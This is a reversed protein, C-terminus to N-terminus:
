WEHSSNLRTSKREDVLEQGQLFSQLSSNVLLAIHANPFCKRLNRLFPVLIVLDGLNWYEVVLTSTPEAEDSAPLPPAPLLPCVVKLLAEFMRILRWKRTTMKVLTARAIADANMPRADSRVDM